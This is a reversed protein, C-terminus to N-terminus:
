YIKWEKDEFIYMYEEKDSLAADLNPYTIAPHLDEGRDRHYAVVVDDIAKNYTHVENENPKVREALSSIDGLALLERVKDETNYHGTLIPLHHDPYGDWHCYIMEISGNTNKIGINSRTAM